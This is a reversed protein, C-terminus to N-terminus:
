RTGIRGGPADKAISVTRGLTKWVRRGRGKEKKAQVRPEAFGSLISKPKRRLREGCSSRMGGGSEAQGRTTVGASGILGAVIL